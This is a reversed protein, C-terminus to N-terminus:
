ILGRQKLFSQVQAPQGAVWADKQHTAPASNGFYTTLAALRAAHNAANADVALIAASAATHRNYSDLTAQNM